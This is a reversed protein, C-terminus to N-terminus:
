ANEIAESLGNYLLKDPTLRDLRLDRDYIAVIPLDPTLSVTRGIMCIRHM